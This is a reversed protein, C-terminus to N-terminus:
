VRAELATIRAQQTDIITKLEQIAKILRADNKNMDSLTFMGDAREGVLDPYIEKVEQAIFGIQHGGGESAIYDFEVPRLALINNLQSPLNTINEKLRSDSYAGFAAANVGNGNIQGGGNAVNNITFQIFVQSTTAINDFKNVTLVPYASDGATISRIGAVGGSQAVGVTGAVLLKAGSPNSTAGILLDNLQASGSVAVSQSITWPTLTGSGGSYLVNVVLAGTGTTYSTVDGLMWNTPSATSSIKVTM